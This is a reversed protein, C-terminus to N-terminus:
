KVVFGCITMALLLLVFTVIGIFASWNNGPGGWAGEKAAERRRSGNPLAGEVRIWDM